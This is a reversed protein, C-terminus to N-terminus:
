SELIEENLIYATGYVSELKLFRNKKGQKWHEKQAIVEKLLDLPNEMEQGSIIRIQYLTDNGFFSTKIVKADVRKKSPSEKMSEVKLGM